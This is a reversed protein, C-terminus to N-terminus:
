CVDRLNVTDATVSCVNLSNDSLTTKWAVFDNPPGTSKLLIFSAEVVQTALTDCGTRSIIVLIQIEVAEIKWWKSVKVVEINGSGIQGFTVKLM